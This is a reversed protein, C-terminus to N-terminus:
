QFHPSYAASMSIGWQSTESSQSTENPNHARGLLPVTSRGLLKASHMQSILRRRQVHASSNFWTPCPAAFLEWSPTLSQHVTSWHNLFSWSTELAVEKKSSAPTALWPWPPFGGWSTQPSKAPLHLFFLRSCLMSM